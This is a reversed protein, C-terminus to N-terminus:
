PNNRINPNVPNTNNGPNNKKDKNLCRLISIPDKNDKSCNPSSIYNSGQITPQTGDIFWDSITPEGPHPALGTLASVTAKHVNDPRSFDLPPLNYHHTTYEMIDHWVPGAGTIGIVNQMETNDSNGAWVGVALNPTYGMTWNDRFSDTTGTKAAVPRDSLELPNGRGFELYRAQKDSLISNVLFAIDPRVVQTGGPKNRDFQYLVNGKNDSIKLISSIPARVGNNAFTAYASTLHLLSTEAGGLALAPGLDTRKAVESLGLRGAMNQVNPIGAYMLADIAPINFSNGIANRVTMPINNHFKMDYNNPEYPKPVAPYITKHDPIIMGPYWGMEFATAYVIPKFSSGPQRLALAANDQGRMTARNANYDASGNMALIEGTKPDMVVAAANNVNNTQSLPGYSGEYSDYQPKNLHDYTIQEVKKELDLDLSTYINYGGTALNEAGLLPELVNQIIYWVFHPAQIKHTTTYSQFKYNQMEKQADAMQQPTIYGLELMSQLVATQRTLADEKNILPNYVTPSQPLGALLSAQGLTLNKVVPVCHGNPDCKPQLHFFGEAAAEAGYNADGYFITNLYMEMIKTKTYQQTLGTALIAEEAKLQFTRPQDDFLLKKVLQQTITSAGEVIGGNNIDSVAARGIGYLDIGSNQWFTRDEAAITANVLLPSIDEYNVYTRRGKGEQKDYLEYLLKGNRDYIHTTQFLSHNAIGDLLPMQAQYFALAGGASGSFLTVLVILMTALILTVRPALERYTRKHRRKRMLLRNVRIRRLERESPSLKHENVPLPTLAHKKGNQSGNTGPSDAILLKAARPRKKGPKKGPQSRPPVPSPPHAQQSNQEVQKSAAEKNTIEVEVTHENADEDDEIAGHTEDVSQLSIIPLEEVPQEPESETHSLEPTLPMNDLAANESASDEQRPPADDEDSQEPQISNLLTTPLEEIPQEGQGSAAQTAAEGELGTDAPQEQDAEREEPTKESVSQLFVAPLDEVPPEAQSSEPSVSALSTTPLDELAPENASDPQVEVQDEAKAAGAESSASEAVLETNDSTNNTYEVNEQPIISESHEQNANTTEYAKIKGSNKNNNSQSGIKRNRNNSSKNRSM